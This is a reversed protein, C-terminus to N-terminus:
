RGSFSRLFFVSGNFESRLIEGREIMEEILYWGSDSKELLDGVADHRM